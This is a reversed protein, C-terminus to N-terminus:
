PHEPADSKWADELRQHAAKRAEAKVEAFLDAPSKEEKGRVCPLRFSRVANPPPAPEDQEVVADPEIFVRFSPRTKEDPWLSKIQLEVWANQLDILIANDGQDLAAADCRAISEDSMPTNVAYCKLTVEVLGDADLRVDCGFCDVLPRDNMRIYSDSGLGTKNTIQLHSNNM